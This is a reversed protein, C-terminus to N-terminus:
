KNYYASKLQKVTRSAKSYLSRLENLTMGFIEDMQNIDDLKDPVDAELFNLKDLLVKIEGKVFVIDQYTEELAEVENNLNESHALLTESLKSKEKSYFDIENVINRNESQYVHLSEKRKDVSDLLKHMFDRTETLLDEYKTIDKNIVKKESNLQEIESILSAMQENIENEALNLNDKVSSIAERLIKDSSESDSIKTKQM